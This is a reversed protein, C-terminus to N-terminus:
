KELVFREKGIRRSKKKGMRNGPGRQQRRRRKRGVCFVGSGLRGQGRNTRRRRSERKDDSRVNKKKKEKGVQPKEGVGIAM